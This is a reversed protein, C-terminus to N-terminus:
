RPNTLPIRVGNREATKVSLWLHHAKAEFEIHFEGMANVATTAILEGQETSL